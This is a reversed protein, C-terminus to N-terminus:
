SGVEEELPCVANLFKLVVTTGGNPSSEVDVEGGSRVVTEKVFALGLGLGKSKTTFFPTFIKAKADPSIGVGTDTVTLSTTAGDTSLDLALAGGAPMADIANQVVNFICRDFIVEGPSLLWAKDPIRNLVTIKQETTKASLLDLIRACIVGADVPILDEHRGDRKLYASLNNLIEELRNVEDRVIELYRRNEGTVGGERLIARAFGGIASLPNRIEHSVVSMVQGVASLKEMRLARDQQERIQSLANELADAKLVSEEVLHANEIAVAALPAAIALLALASETVEQGTIANDVVIAGVPTDRAILPACIFEGARLAERFERDIWEERESEKVWLIKRRALAAVPLNAGDSAWNRFRLSRVSRNLQNTPSLLHSKNYAVITELDANGASLQTWIKGAESPDSPGLWLRGVLDDGEVLFVMARNFGLGVGATLATLIVSLTEHLSFASSFVHSMTFVMALPDNRDVSLDVPSKQEIERIM